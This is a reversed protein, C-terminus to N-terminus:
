IVSKLSVAFSRLFFTEGKAAVKETTQPFKKEM